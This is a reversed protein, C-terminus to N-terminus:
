PTRTGGPPPGFGAAGLDAAGAGHILGEIFQRARAPHAAGHVVVAAYVVTPRAAPPLQIARLTGQSTRVDSSYLFAADIVGAQLKAILSTVSPERTSVNAEIARGQTGLRALAQLTYSGVPDSPTGIGLHVGRRTLGSLSSVTAGHSRVALVLKNTAFPIPRESLGSAFVGQPLSTNGSAFVDPRAGAIIQASLQDSGAFNFTTHGFSSAYRTFASQLSAAAFVSIQLNSTGGGGCGVMASCALALLPSLLRSARVVRAGVERAADGLRLHSAMQMLM